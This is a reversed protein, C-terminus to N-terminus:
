KVIGLLVVVRVVIVQDDHYSLSKVPVSMAWRNPALVKKVIGVM